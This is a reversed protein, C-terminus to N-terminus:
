RVLEEYFKQVQEEFRHPAGRKMADLLEQRFARPAASDDASPIRVPEDRHESGSQDRDSGNRQQSIQKRASDLKEAAQGALEAGRGPAPRGLERGSEGIKERAGDIDNRVKSPLDGLSSGSQMLQKGMEEGRQAASQQRKSDSAIQRPSSRRERARRM